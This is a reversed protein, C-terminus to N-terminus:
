ASPLLVCEAMICIHDSSLTESPLATEQTLEEPLPISLVRRPIIRDFTDDKLRFIYDLTAQFFSTYNTYGPEKNVPQPHHETFLSYISEWSPFKANKELLYEGSPQSEGVYVEKLRTELKIRALEETSPTESPEWKEFKYPDLRQRLDSGLTQGTVSLYPASNPQFNFDGCILVPFNYNANIRSIVNNLHLAQRMRISDVYPRWYLHSSTVILGYNGKEESNAKLAVVLGVNRTRLLAEPHTVPIDTSVLQQESEALATTPTPIQTYSEAGSTIEDRDYIVKYHSLHSFKEKKWLIACGDKESNGDKQHYRGEYGAKTLEPGFFDEYKDLEQLCLIDPSHSLIENLINTKRHTWRLAKKTAYPFLTRKILCQALVNYTLITFSIGEKSIPQSLAPTWTRVM